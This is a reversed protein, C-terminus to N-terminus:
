KLKIINQITKKNTILERVSVKLMIAKGSKSKLANLNSYSKVPTEFRYVTTYKANKFVTKDKSSLSNYENILNYSYLREFTKNKYIFNDRPEFSYGRPNNFITNINRVANNLATVTKFNGKITFIYNKWDESINIKSIAKDKELELKVRSIVNKFHQKNPMPRGNVSDLLFM